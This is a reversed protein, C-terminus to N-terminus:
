WLPLLHTRSSLVWRAFFVFLCLLLVCSVCFACNISSFDGWLYKRTKGGRTTSRTSGRDLRLPVPTWCRPKMFCRMTFACSASTRPLLLRRRQQLWQGSNRLRLTAVAKSPDLGQHINSLSPLLRSIFACVFIFSHLHTQSSYYSQRFSLFLPQHQPNPHQSFPFFPPDKLVENERSKIPDVRAPFVGSSVSVISSVFSM